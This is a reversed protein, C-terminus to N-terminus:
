KRKLKLKSFLKIRDFYYNNGNDKNGKCIDSDILKKIKINKCLYSLIDSEIEDEKTYDLLNNILISPSYMIKGNINEKLKIINDMQQKGTLGTACNLLTSYLKHNSIQNLCFESTQNIDLGYERINDFYCFIFNFALNKDLYLLACAHVANAYCESEGHKCIYDTYDNNQNLISNDTKELAGPYLDIIM